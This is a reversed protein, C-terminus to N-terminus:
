GAVGPPQPVAAGPPQVAAGPPPSTVDFPAPHAAAGPMMEVDRDNVAAIHRVPESYRSGSFVGDTFTLSTLSAVSCSRRRPDHWLRQGHLFRRATVIPLQHSVIVAQHGDAADVATYIAALMRRAIELYPEGWSPTRPDRLKVWSRPSGVTEGNLGFAVGEFDNAAEIVRDDTVVPLDFVAALPAATEQARQLSSAALYTVDSGALHDAVGQAMARGSAALRYGPLRGYLVNGPNQVKGHRLLHVVTTSPPAPVEGNNWAEAASGSV